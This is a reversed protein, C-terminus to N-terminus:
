WDIKYACVRYKIAYEYVKDLVEAPPKNIKLNSSRATVVPIPNPYDFINGEYDEGCAELLNDLLYEIDYLYFTSYKDFDHSAPSLFTDTMAWDRKTEERVMLTLEDVWEKFILDDQIYDETEFLAEEAFLKLKELKTLSDDNIIEQIRQEQLAKIQEKLNSM